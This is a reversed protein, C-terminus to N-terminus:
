NNMTTHIATLKKQHKLLVENLDIDYHSAISSINGLMEGLGEMLLQKNEKQAMSNIGLWDEPSELGKIASAVTGTEEALLGISMFINAQSRGNEESFEKLWQQFVNIDM